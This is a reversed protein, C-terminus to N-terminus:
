AGFRSSISAHCLFRVAPQHRGGLRRHRAFGEIRLRERGALHRNFDCAAAHAMRVKAVVVVAHAGVMRQREREAMLHAPAHAGGAGTGLGPDSARHDNGCHQGTALAIQALAAEAGNAAPLLHGAVVDLATEGRVDHHRRATQARDVLLTEGLRSELQRIDRHNGIRKGGGVLRHLAGADRRTRKRDHDPGAANTPVAHLDRVGHAGLDDRDVDICALELRKRRVARRQRQVCFLVVRLRELAGHGREGLRVAQARCHIM